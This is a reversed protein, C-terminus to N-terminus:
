FSFNAWPHNTTTSDAASDGFVAPASASTIDIIPGYRNNADIVYNVTNGSASNRLILNGTGQVRIGRYNNIVNNAEVRSDALVVQIGAHDGSGGNGACQNNMVLSSATRIGSASNTQAVCARVISNIGASIGTDGNNKAVCETVTCAEGAVIGDGGNFAAVCERITSGTFAEIGVDRNGEATCRQVLSNFGVRLGDQDAVNWGNSYARLGFLKSNDANAADVGDGGWERLIGNRIEINKQDGFVIIGSQSTTAKGVLAHGGLDITVDSANVTVGHQGSEGTLSGVLKVSAPWDISEPIQCLLINLYNGAVIDYNDPNGWVRNGVVQNFAFDLDLGRDSATADNNEILNGIGVVHIAAGDGAGAGNGECANNAVHCSTSVEIGDGTNLVATCDTITSGDGSIIGDGQNSSAKCESVRSSTGASIGNGLNNNATCGIVMSTTVEIGNQTNLLASCRSITSGTSAAIGDFGNARATCETITCVSSAGIGDFGNGQVTCHSVTCGFSVSIGRNGNDSAVCESVTCGSGTKIGSAQNAEAVCARILSDSGVGIGNQNISDLGNSYARLGELICNSSPPSVHVGHLGWDRVTGNRIEINRRAAPVDIGVLSGPVGTLEFGNLDLTVGSAEITIGANAVTGTLNTTLYYSGPASILIPLSSIPTRPEIQELTKMTPGPATAPSLPGQSLVTSVTLGLVTGVGARFLFCPAVFRKSECRNM